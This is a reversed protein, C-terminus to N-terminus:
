VWIRGTNLKLFSSSWSWTGLSSETSKPVFSKWNQKESFSKAPSSGEWLVTAFATLLIPKSLCVFLCVCVCVCVCQTAVLPEATLKGEFSGRLISQARVYDLAGKFHVSSIDKPEAAALPMEARQTIPSSFREEAPELHLPLVQHDGSGRRAVNWVNLACQSSTEEAM